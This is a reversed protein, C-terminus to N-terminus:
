RVSILKILVWLLLLLAVGGLGIVGWVLPSIGTQKKRGFPSAAGFSPAPAGGAGVQSIDVGTQTPPLPQSAKKVDAEFRM